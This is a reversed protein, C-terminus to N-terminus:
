AGFLQKLGVLQLLQGDNWNGRGARQRSGATTTISDPAGRAPPKGPPGTARRQRANYPRGAAEVSVPHGGRWGQWGVAVVGVAQGPPM